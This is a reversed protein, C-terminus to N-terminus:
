SIQPSKLTICGGINFLILWKLKMRFIYLSINCQISFVRFSFFNEMKCLLAPICKELKEMMEVTIEKACLQRYFYSLDALVM